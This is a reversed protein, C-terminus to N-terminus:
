SEGQVIGESAALMERLRDAYDRAAKRLQRDLQDTAEGDEGAACYADLQELAEATTLHMAIHRDVRELVEQALGEQDAFASVARRLGQALRHPEDLPDSPQYYYWSGKASLLQFVLGVAFAELAAETSTHFAPLVHLPRQGRKREYDRKWAPFRQLATYPAGLTARLAIIRRSDRTSVQAAKHAAFLTDDQDPVGLVTLSALRAGGDELRTRDVNWSPTARELLWLRRAEPSVGNGNERLASEVGLQLIPKFSESAWGQIDRALQVATRDAWDLPNRARHLCLAATDRLSPAYRAYLRAVYDPDALELDVPLGNATAGATNELLRAASRLRDALRDLDDALQKRLRCLADFVNLSATNLHRSLEAECLATAVQLYYRQAKRVNKARGLLGTTAARLLAQSQQKLVKDRQEIEDDLERLEQRLATRAAALRAELNDLLTAAVAVGLDPDGALQLVQQRLRGTLHESRKKRRAEIAARFSSDVRRSRYSHIYTITEQARQELPLQQLRGPLTLDVTIPVGEEDMAMHDALAAPNLRETEWFLQAPDKTQDQADQTEDEESGDEPSRLWGDRILSLAQQRVCESHAARANFQCVSLGVAGFFTGKGDQTVGTLVEDLNDFDNEGKRGLQSGIQLYLALASQRCVANIGTWVRGREDVGDILYYLNFPASLPEVVRGTPYTVRFDQRTMVHNLEMLSAVTNAELYPGQVNRFAGPLVGLGTIQCFDGLDGLEEVLDRTLFATDLSTSSGQGGCESSGIFINIGRGGDVVGRRGTDRGTLQWIANKLHDEVRHFHWYFALLGLLRIQKTGNRLVTPPLQSLSDGFREAIAQHKDKHRIIRGVPVHGINVFETGPELKVIRGDELRADISEDASDFAILRIWEPLGDRHSEFLAKLHVCIRHGTGGLGIVLTPRFGGELTESAYPTSGNGQKPKVAGLEEHGLM